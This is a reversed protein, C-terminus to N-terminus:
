LSGQVSPRAEDELILLRLVKSSAKKSPGSSGLYLALQFGFGETIDTREKAVYHLTQISVEENKM